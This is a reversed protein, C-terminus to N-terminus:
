TLHDKLMPMTERPEWGDKTFWAGHDMAMGIDTGCIHADAESLAEDIQHVLPYKDDEGDEDIARRIASLQQSLCFFSQALDHLAAHPDKVLLRLKAVGANFEAEESEDTFTKM